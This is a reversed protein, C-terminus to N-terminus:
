WSTMAAFEVQELTGTAAHPIACSTIAAFLAGTLRNRFSMVLAGQLGATWDKQAGVPGM